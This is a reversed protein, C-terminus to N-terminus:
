DNRNKKLIAVNSTEKPYCKNGEGFKFENKFM